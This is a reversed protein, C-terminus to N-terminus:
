AADPPSCVGRGPDRQRAIRFCTEKNFIWHKCLIASLIRPYVKPYRCKVWSSTWLEYMVSGHNYWRTKPEWLYSHKGLVGLGLSQTKCCYILRLRFMEHCRQIGIEKEWLKMSGRVSCHFCSLRINLVVLILSFCMDHYYVFLFM